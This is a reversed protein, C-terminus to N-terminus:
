VSGSRRKQPWPPIEVLERNGFRHYQYVDTNDTGHDFVKRLHELFLKPQMSENTDVRYINDAATKLTTFLANRGQPAVNWLRSTLLLSIGESKMEHLRDVIRHLIARVERLHVQEDYFTDLLGFILAVHGGISRIFPFLRDNVAAEMQYCTFGRSVFIRNLVADSSVGRERAYRAISHADFRNCGDIVAIPVNHLLMRSALVLSFRFVVPDGYLMFIKGSPEALFNRVLTDYTTPVSPLHRDNSAPVQPSNNHHERYGGWGM